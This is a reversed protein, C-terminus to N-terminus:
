TQSDLESAVTAGSIGQSSTASSSQHESNIRNRSNWSKARNGEKRGFNDVKIERALNSRGEKLGIVRRNMPDNM